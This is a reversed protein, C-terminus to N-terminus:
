PGEEVLWQVSVVNRPQAEDSITVEVSEGERLYETPIWIASLWDGNPQDATDESLDEVARPVSWAFALNDGDPDNALVWVRIREQSFLTLPVPGAINAPQTVAPPRNVEREQVPTVYLCGTLAAICAVHWQRLLAHCRPFGGPGGGRGKEFRSMWIM